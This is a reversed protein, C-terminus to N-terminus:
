KKKKSSSKKKASKAPKAAVKVEEKPPVHSPCTSWGFISYLGCWGLIGTALAIIAPIFWLWQGLLLALIIFVVALVIRVLRDAIGVNQNM